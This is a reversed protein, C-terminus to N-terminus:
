IDNYSINYIGGIMKLFVDYRLAATNGALRELSAFMAAVFEKDNQEVIDKGLTTMLKCLV